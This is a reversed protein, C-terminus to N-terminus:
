RKPTTLNWYEEIVRQGTLIISPTLLAKMEAIEKRLETLEDSTPKPAPALKNAIRAMRENQADTFNQVAGPAPMETVGYPLLTLVVCMM